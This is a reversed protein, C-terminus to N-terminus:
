DFKRAMLTDIPINASIWGWLQTKIDIMKNVPKGPMKLTLYKFDKITGFIDGKEKAGRFPKDLTTSGRAQTGRISDTNSDKGSRFDKGDSTKFFITNKQNNLIVHIGGNMGVPIKNKDVIDWMTKAAGEHTEFMINAPVVRERAANQKIAIKYDTLVWVLHVNNPNYGADYMKPLTENISDLDKLTVDFMINPLVEKNQMVSIMKKLTKDKIAKIEIFQHLKFVDAPKKLNLGRLEPYKKKLKDIKLFALKWEDVDRIKYDQSNIFNKAAFGKGSGAGGALIVIQGYRAGRNILLLKEQLEQQEVLHKKFSLM